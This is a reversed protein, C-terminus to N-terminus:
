GTIMRIFSRAEPAEIRRSECSRARLMGKNGREGSIRLALDPM